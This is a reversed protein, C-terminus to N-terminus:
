LVALALIRNLAYRTPCLLYTCYNYSDRWAGSQTFEYVLEMFIFCVNTLNM